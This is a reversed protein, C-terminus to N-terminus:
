NVKSEIINISIDGKIGEELNNEMNKIENSRYM